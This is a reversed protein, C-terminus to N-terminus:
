GNWSKVLLNILSIAGSYWHSSTDMLFDYQFSLDDLWISNCNGTDQSLDYASQANLTAAGVQHFLNGASILFTDDRWFKLDM